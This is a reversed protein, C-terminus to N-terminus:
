PVAAMHPEVTTKLTQKETQPEAVSNSAGLCEPLHDGVRLGNAIITFGLNASRIGIITHSHESMRSNTPLPPSVKCPRGTM